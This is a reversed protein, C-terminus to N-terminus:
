ALLLSSGSTIGEASLTSNLPLVRGKERSCLLFRGAQSSQSLYEKQSIMGVMDEIVQEVAVTEDLKFDYSRNLEAVYVEVLIM